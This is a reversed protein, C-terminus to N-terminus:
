QGPLAIAVFEGLPPPPAGVEYETLGASGAPNLKFVLVPVMVPVGVVRVAVAVYVTVTVFEHPLVVSPKLMVM